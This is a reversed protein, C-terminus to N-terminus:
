GYEGEDKSNPDAGLQLLMFEEFSDAAKFLENLSTSFNNDDKRGIPIKVAVELIGLRSMSEKNNSITDIISQSLSTPILLTIVVSGFDIDVIFFIDTVKHGFYYQLVRKFNQLTMEEWRHNLEIVVKTQNSTTPSAAAPLSSLKEKIKSRIHKLQSLESFEDVNKIYQILEAHVDDSLPIFRHVLSKLLGFNFFDYHPSIANFITDMNVLSLNLAQKLYAEAHYRIDNVELKGSSVLENFYKRIKTVLSTLEQHLSEITRAVEAKSSLQIVAPRSSPSEVYVSQLHPIQYEHEDNKTDPYQEDLSPEKTLSPRQQKPALPPEIQEVEISGGKDRLKTSLKFAMDNLGVKQLSTILSSLVSNLNPHCELTALVSSFIKNARDYPSLGATSEVTVHVAKPILDSSFLRNNLQSIVSANGALLDVLDALMEKMTIYEPSMSGEMPELSSPDKKGEKDQLVTATPDHPASSSDQSRRPKSAIPPPKNTISPRRPKPAKPPPQTTITPRRPKPPLPLTITQRRPPLPSHPASIKVQSSLPQANVTSLSQRRPPIPPLQDQLSFFQSLLPTEQPKLNISTNNTSQSPKQFLSEIQPSLPPPMSEQSSENKPKPEMPSLPQSSQSLKTAIPLHQAPVKAISFPEHQGSQSPVPAAPPLTKFTEQLTSDKVKGTLILQGKSPSEYFEILESVKPRDDPIDNSAIPPSEIMLKSPPISGK